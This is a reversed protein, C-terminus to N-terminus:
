SGFYGRYSNQARVYLEVIFTNLVIALWTAAAFGLRVASGIHVRSKLDAVVAVYGDM